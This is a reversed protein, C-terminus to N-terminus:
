KGRLEDISVALALQYLCKAETKGRGIYEKGSDSNFKAIFGADADKWEWAKVRVRITARKIEIKVEGM